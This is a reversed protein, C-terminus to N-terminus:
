NKTLETHLIDTQLKNMIRSNWKESKCKLM